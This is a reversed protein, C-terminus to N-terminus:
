SGPQDSRRFTPYLSDYCDLSRGPVDSISLYAKRGLVTDRKPNVPYVHGPFSALNALVARGVSAERETAGIVAVGAPTFFRELPWDSAFESM